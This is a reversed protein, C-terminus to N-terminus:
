FITITITVNGSFASTSSSDTVQCRFVAQYTGAQASAIFFTSASNPATPEISTSGSVRSWTYSFGGTGGSATVQTSSNTVILSIQGFEDESQGSGSLTNPTPGTVIISSVGSAGRLQSVSLAGSNPASGFGRYESLNIPNSGGLEVQIASFSIPGTTPIPM